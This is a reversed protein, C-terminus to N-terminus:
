WRGPHGEAPHPAAGELHDELKDDLDIHRVSSTDFEYSATCGAAARLAEKSTDHMWHVGVLRGGSLALATSEADVDEMAAYEMALGQFAHQAAAYADDEPTIEGKAIAEVASRAQVWHVDGVYTSEDIRRWAEEDVIWQCLGPLAAAGLVREVGIDESTLARGAYDVLPYAALALPIAPDSQLAFFLATKVSDPGEPWISARLLALDVGEVRLAFTAVVHAEKKQAHVQEAKWRKALHVALASRSMYSGTRAAELQGSLDPPIGANNRRWLEAGTPDSSLRAKKAAVCLFRGRSLAAGQTTVAGAAFRLSANGIPPRRALM